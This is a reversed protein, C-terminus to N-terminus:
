HTVVSLELAHRNIRLDILARQALDIKERKLARYNICFDHGDHRAVVADITRICCVRLPQQLVNNTVLPAKITREDTVPIAQM